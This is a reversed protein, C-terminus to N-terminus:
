PVKPGAVPSPADAAHPRARVEVVRWRFGRTAKEVRYTYRRPGPEYRLRVDEIHTLARVRKRATRRLVHHSVVSAHGTM